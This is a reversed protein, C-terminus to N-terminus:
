LRPRRRHSVLLAFALFAALGTGSSCDCGLDSRLLPRLATGGDPPGGADGAGADRRGGDSTAPQPFVCMATGADVLCLGNGCSVCKDAHIGCTQAARPQCVGSTDCCGDPCSGPDCNGQCLGNDCPASAACIACLGGGSGCEQNLMGSQCGNLPDCCGSCQGCGAPVCDGAVCLDGADCTTCSGGGVGCATGADGSQCTGTGDCCGSCAGGVPASMGAQVACLTGPAAAAVFALGLTLLIAARLM